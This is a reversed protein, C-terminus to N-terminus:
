RMRNTENLEIYDRILDTFVDGYKELKVKGVGNIGSFQIVSVPKKRCMDRLSADSFIIYAPVADKMALEKRLKKLKELLQEDIELPLVSTQDPAETDPVPESSSDRKKSAAGGPRRGPAGVAEPVGCPTPEDRFNGRPLKMLLRRENRLLPGANGLTVVPYEGDELILIGEDILGDLIARIRHARTSAM